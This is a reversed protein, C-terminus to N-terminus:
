PLSLVGRRLSVVAGQVFWCLLSLPPPTLHHLPGEFGGALAEVKGWVSGRPVARPAFRRKLCTPMLPPGKPAPRAPSRCRGSVGAWLAPRHRPPRPETGPCPRALSSKATRLCSPHLASAVVALPFCPPSVWAGRPPVRGPLPPGWHVETRAPIPAGAQGAHFDALWHCRRDRGPHPHPLPAPGPGWACVTLPVPLCM